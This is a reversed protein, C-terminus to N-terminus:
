AVSASALKLVWEHTAAKYRPSNVSAGARDICVALPLGYGVGGIEREAAVALYSAEGAGQGAGGRSLFPERSFRDPEFTEALLWSLIDEQAATLPAQLEVYFCYELEADVQRYFREIM